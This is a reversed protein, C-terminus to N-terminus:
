LINATVVMLLPRGFEDISGIGISSAQLMKLRFRGQNESPCCPAARESVELGTEVVVELATHEAEEPGTEGVAVDLVTHAAEELGTEGVAVLM